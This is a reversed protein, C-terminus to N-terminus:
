RRNSPLVSIVKLSLGALLRLRSYGGSPREAIQVQLWDGTMSKREAKVTLV